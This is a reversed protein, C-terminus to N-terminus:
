RSVLGLHGQDGPPFELPVHRYCRVALHDLNALLVPHLDQCRPVSLAPLGRLHLRLLDQNRYAPLREVVDEVGLPCSDLGAGSAPDGDVLVELRVLRVDPRQAVSVPPIEELVDRVVLRLHDVVVRHQLILQLRVEVCHGM